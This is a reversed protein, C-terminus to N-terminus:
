AVPPGRSETSDIKSQEPKPRVVIIIVKKPKPDQKPLTVQDPETYAALQYDCTACKEYDFAAESIDHDQHSHCDHYWDKPVLALSFVALLFLSIYVKIANM